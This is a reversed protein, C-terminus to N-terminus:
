RERLSWTGDPWQIFTSPDSELLRQILGKAETECVTILEKRAREAKPDDLRCGKLHEIYGVLSWYDDSLKDEDIVSTTNVDSVIAEKNSRCLSAFLRDM